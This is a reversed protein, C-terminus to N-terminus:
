GRYVARVFPRIRPEGGHEGGLPPDQLAGIRCIRSAGSALAMTELAPSEWPAVAFGELPLGHRVLFAAADAPGDVPYLGLVRPLLPPPVDRPPDFDVLHPGGLASPMPAGSRQTARFAAARRYATVAPTAEARGAPFARAVADGAAVVHDAFREADVAGGREVFCAHPSLCGEGDYLLADRGLGLALERATRDDALAERAVYAVSTRHGYGVHRAGPASAAIARLTGDSGYAVVVAAAALRARTEADDAGNWTEVEARAALEPEREALAAVFAAALRDGRDKVLVRAGSCLAFCLAPIAVGITTDSAVLAIRGLPRYTVDPRGPRALWGDLAEVGGIDGAIAAGLRDADIGGFLRDLAHGVVPASYGTREAVLPVIARREPSDHSAFRRATGDLAALVRWIRMASGEAPSQM